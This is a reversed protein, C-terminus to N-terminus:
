YEVKSDAGFKTYIDGFNEVFWVAHEPLKFEVFCYGPNRLKPGENKVRIDIAKINKYERIINRIDIIKFEKNMHNIFIRKVSQETEITELPKERLVKLIKNNLIIEKHLVDKNLKKVFTLKAKGLFKGQKDNCMEINTIEGYISFCKRISEESEKYSLNMVTIVNNDVIKNKKYAKKPKNDTHKYDEQKKGPLKKTIVKPKIENEGTTKTEIFNDKSGISKIEYIKEKNKNEKRDNIKRKLNFKNNNEYNEKNEERNEKNRNKNYNEDKEINYKENNNEKVENKNKQSKEKVNKNKALKNTVKENNKNVKSGFSDDEYVGARAQKGSRGDDLCKRKGQRDINEASRKNNEQGNNKRQETRQRILDQARAIKESNDVLFQSQIKSETNKGKKDTTIKQKKLIEKKELDTNTNNQTKKM